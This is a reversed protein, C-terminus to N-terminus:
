RRTQSHLAELTEKLEGADRDASRQAQWELLAAQERRLVDAGYSAGRPLAPRAFPHANWWEILGARRRAPDAELVDLLDAKLEFVSGPDDVGQQLISPLAANMTGALAILESSVGGFWRLRDFRARQEALWQASAAADVTTSAGAAAPRAAAPAAPEAIVDPSVVAPGSGFPSPARGPVEDVAPPVPPPPVTPEPQLMWVLGAGFAALVAAALGVRRHPRPESGRPGSTTM